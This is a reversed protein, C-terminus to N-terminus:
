IKLETAKEKGNVRDTEIEFEIPTGEQLNDIGAAELATRHVFVDTGGNSTEIFGFGKEKNYFKVKGDTM